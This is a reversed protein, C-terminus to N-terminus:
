FTVDIGFNFVKQIPYWNGWGNGTEPDIDVDKLGDWTLLNLGQAYIRVQQFNFFRLIRNPLHYGIEVNKLRIYKADYLFLSSNANKNNEHSGYHLAPYKATAATEPTWRQLHIEKVAGVKDQDYIPFDYISAGNLQISTNAAGQFLVSFDFNKYQFGVPIGFQIEPSRPHGMATRDEDDIVGNRDLDKYM